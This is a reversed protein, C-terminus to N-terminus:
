LIFMELIRMCVYECGSWAPMKKHCPTELISQASPPARNRPWNPVYRTGLSCWEADCQESRNLSARWFVSKADKPLTLWPIGLYALIHWAVLRSGLIKFSNWFFTRPFVNISGMAWRLQHLRCTLTQGQPDRNQIQMGAVNGPLWIIWKHWIM